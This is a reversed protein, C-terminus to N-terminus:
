NLVPVDLPQCILIDLRRDELDHAGIDCSGKDSARYIGFLSKSYLQRKEDHDDLIYM